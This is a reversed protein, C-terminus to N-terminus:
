VGQFGVLVDIEKGTICWVEGEVENEDAGIQRLMRKDETDLLDKGGCDGCAGGDQCEEKDANVM